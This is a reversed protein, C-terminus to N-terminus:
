IKNIKAPHSRYPTSRACCASVALIPDLPYLNHYTRHSIVKTASWQRPSEREVNRAGSPHEVLSHRSSKIKSRHALRRRLTYQIGRRVLKTSHLGGFAPTFKVSSNTVLRTKPHRPHPTWPQCLSHCGPPSVPLPVWATVCATTGLRHSVLLPVCATVHRICPLPVCVAAGLPSLRHCVPLPVCATACMENKSQRRKLSQDAGSPPIRHCGATAGLRPVSGTACPCQCAPLPAGATACLCNYAAATTCLRHRM